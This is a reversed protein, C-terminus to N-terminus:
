RELFWEMLTLALVSWVEVGFRCSALSSSNVGMPSLNLSHRYTMPSLRSFGAAVERELDLTPVQM